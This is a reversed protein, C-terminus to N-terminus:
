IEKKFKAIFFGDTDHVYPMLQLGLQEGFASRVPLETDSLSFNPNNALFWEVNEANEEYFVTCTSYVLTGGKKVYNKAVSLMNRQVAVLQAVDSEKRFVKVDPRSFVIGYGSCPADLLVRDFKEKFSPNFVTADNLAVKVNDAHMKRAYGEILKLKHPYIDCATIDANPSLNAMYVSKGGPAACCDLVKEGDSAGVARAALMAALSMAVCANKGTVSTVDGYVRLADPLVTDEYKLGENLLVTKIKEISNVATNVRLNTSPRNVYGAFSAAADIGYADSLKKLAWVPISNKVSLAQLEDRPMVFSDTAHAKSVNRLVANVFGCLGKKGRKKLIEVCDNVAIASPLNLETICFTGARLITSVASPVKPAFQNIYYDVLVYNDLVGYVIKTVLPKDDALTEKLFANLSVNSFAGNKFISDLCDCATMIASRTSM